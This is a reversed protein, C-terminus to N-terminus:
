RNIEPDNTFLNGKLYQINETMFMVNIDMIKKESEIKRFVKVIKENLIKYM